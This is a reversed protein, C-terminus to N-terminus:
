YQGNNLSPKGLKELDSANAPKKGKENAMATDAQLYDVGYLLIFV